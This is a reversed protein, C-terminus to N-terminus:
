HATRKQKRKEKQKQVAEREWKRLLPYPDFSYTNKGNFRYIGYHLHPPFKGSTGPPGYGSSGVSGIVDGPKVVQGPKLGKRFGNLHGFYHYRNKLDRIGVRWGGFRNWGMLEVYGYCTSLVPTGYGAFIDTGEHIRLGGWGRRDGWTSRYSYNYNLPIPFSEDSLKLTGFTHYVKAMHTIVDVATPHQYYSWLQNRIQDEAIGNQSLYRAITYLVDLDNHVDAKGDGDGDIGIGQFLQIVFPSQEDPSPNLLGAWLYTPVKIAILKKKEDPNKSKKLSQNNREYQDMAALYYWPIGTFTEMTEYLNQRSIDTSIKNASAKQIPLSTFLLCSVLLSLYYKKM